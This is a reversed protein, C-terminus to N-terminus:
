LAPAARSVSEVALAPYQGVARKELAGEVVASSEPTREDGLAPGRVDAVEGFTPSRLIIDIM